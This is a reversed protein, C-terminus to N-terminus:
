PGLEGDQHVDEHIIRAGMGVELLVPRLVRNGTGPLLGGRLRLNKWLGGGVYFAVEGGFVGTFNMVSTVLESRASLRDVDM